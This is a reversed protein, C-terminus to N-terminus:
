PLGHRRLCELNARQEDAITEPRDTPGPIVDQEIVLWGSYSSSRIAGLLGEVDLDGSGLACFARDSWIARVPGDSAVVRAVVARHCDKLHLHNIRGEWRGFLEVPDGGAALLHGTDLCLGIDTDELLREIEDPTEVYTGLHHHFTPEFGRRRVREAARELRSVLASWAPADLACNSTRGGLHDRSQPSGADALTPKPRFAPESAPAADFLDLVQDLAAMEEDFLGEDSMTMAMWGGALGIGRSELRQGLAAADGLYGVPGLDIGEYGAEVVLDLLRDPLVLPPQSATLEFVGFSM